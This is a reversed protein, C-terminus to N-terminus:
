GWFLALLFLGLQDWYSAVQSVKFPKFLFSAICVAQLADCSQPWAIRLPVLMPGPHKIECFANSSKRVCDGRESGGPM